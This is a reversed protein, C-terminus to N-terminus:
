VNKSFSVKRRLIVSSYAFYQSLHVEYEKNHLENDGLHDSWSASVYSHGIDVRGVLRNM